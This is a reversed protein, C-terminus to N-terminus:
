LEAVVPPQGLAQKIEQRSEPHKTAYAVLLGFCGSLMMDGHPAAFYPNLSTNRIRHRQPGTVAVMPRQDDSAPPRRMVQPATETAYFVGHGNSKFVEEHQLDGTVLRTSFDEIQEATIEGTHHEYLAIIRTGELHFALAHM